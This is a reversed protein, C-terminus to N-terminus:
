LNEIYSSLRQHPEKFWYTREFLDKMVQPRTDWRHRLNINEFNGVKSTVHLDYEVTDHTSTRLVPKLKRVLLLLKKAQFSTLKKSIKKSKHKKFLAAHHDDILISYESYTTINKKTLIKATALNIEFYQDKFLNANTTKMQKGNM